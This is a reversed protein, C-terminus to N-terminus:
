DMWESSDCGNKDQKSLGFGMVNMLVERIQGTENSQIQIENKTQAKNVGKYEPKLLRNLETAIHKGQSLYAYGIVIIKLTYKKRDMKSKKKAM